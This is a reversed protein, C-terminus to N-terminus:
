PEHGHARRVRWEKLSMAKLNDLDVFLIRKTLLNVEFVYFLDLDKSAMISYVYVAEYCQGNIRVRKGTDFVSNDQTWTHLEPLRRVMETAVRLDSKTSESPSCALDVPGVTSSALLIAVFQWM